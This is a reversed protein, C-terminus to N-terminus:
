DVVRRFIYLRTEGVDVYQGFGEVEKIEYEGEVRDYYNQALFKVYNLANVNTSFIMADPESNGVTVVVSVGVVTEVTIEVGTTISDGM